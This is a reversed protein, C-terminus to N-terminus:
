FKQLVDWRVTFYTMCEDTSQTGFVFGGVFLDDVKICIKLIFLWLIPTEKFFVASCDNNEFYSSKETVSRLQKM